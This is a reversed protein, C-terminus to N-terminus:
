IGRGRQDYKHKSYAFVFIGPPPLISYIHGKRIISGTIPLNPRIHIDLPPEPPPAFIRRCIMLTNFGCGPPKTYSMHM